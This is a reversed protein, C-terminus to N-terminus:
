GEARRARLRCQAIRLEAGGRALGTALLVVRTM